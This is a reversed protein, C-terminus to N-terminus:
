SMQAAKYSVPQVKESAQVTSILTDIATNFDDSPIEPKLPFKNHLVTTQSLVLVKQELHHFHKKEHM